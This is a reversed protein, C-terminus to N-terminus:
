AKTWVCAAVKQQPKKSGIWYAVISFAITFKEEAM